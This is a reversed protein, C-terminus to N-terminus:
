QEGGGTNPRTDFDWTFGIMPMLVARQVEAEADDALYVWELGSGYFNSAVDMFAAELTVGFQPGASLELGAHPTLLLWNTREFPRYFHGGATLGLYPAVWRYRYGGTVGVTPFVMLGSQFDSLWALELDTVLSWGQDDAQEGLGPQIPAYHVGTELHLPISPVAPATLNYALSVDLDDRLGYRGGLFFVPMPVPPGLATTIPGGLSVEAAARSKGVTRTRHTATCASLALMVLFLSPIPSRLDVETATALM